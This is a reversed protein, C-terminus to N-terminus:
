PLDTYSPPKHTNNADNNADNYNNHIPSPVSQHPITSDINEYPGRGASPGHTGSSGLRTDGLSGLGPFGFSSYRGQRENYLRLLMLSTIPRLLLNSIAM